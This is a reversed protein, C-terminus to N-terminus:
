PKIIVRRIPSDLYIIAVYMGSSQNSIDISVYGDVIPYNKTWLLNSNFDYVEVKVENDIRKMLGPPLRINSEGETPNPFPNIDTEDDYCEGKYDGHSEHDPWDSELIEITQPNDPNGSPLHCILIKNQDDGDDLQSDSCGNEDVTEDEPTEPCHDMDNAVGDDDDDLQSSSCGYADVTDGETTDPCEDETNLVGDNDDDCYCPSSQEPDSNSHGQNVNYFFTLSTATNASMVALDPSGDDNYDHSIIQAPNGPAYFEVPDLLHHSQDNILVSIANGNTNSVVLDNFGDRDLDKVLLATPYNDVFYENALSFTGDGNGFSIGVIESVNPGGSYIIDLNGDEDFDKALINDPHSAELIELSQEEFFGDGDGILINIKGNGGGAGAIDLNCDNNFDGYVFDGSSFSMSTNLTESFSGDGEGKLFRIEDFDCLIIDVICDNNFDDAFVSRIREGQIIELQNNFTGNDDGFLIVANNHNASGTLIDLYGDHNLDAIALSSPDNSTSFFSISSYVGSGNGYIVGVRGNDRDNVVFDINGDENIDKQVMHYTGQFGSGLSYSVGPLLQANLSFTIFLLVNFLVIKKSSKM